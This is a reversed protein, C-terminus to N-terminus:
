KSYIKRHKPTVWFGMYKGLMLRTQADLGPFAGFFITTLPMLIWQLIMFAYSSKKVHAPRPPLILVSLIAPTILAVLALRMVINSFQTQNFSLVSINFHQGGILGPLWGLAFLMISNTAWSWYGEGVALTYFLKKSLPIAKNKIFGFMYYPVNEVGYGWRRHQKYINVLTRWISSDLNADLAVPYYLPIVRYNGNYRLLCQWFVRSDESVMNVQWFGIDVAAKFPMSHSSFTILNEPRAQQILQWFTSSFAVIRALAPADWINNVFFPVPQYSAHLPDPTTLFTYTLKGFYEPYVITDIDLVSVIIKEYPLGISDIIDRKIEKGAWAINAGKGAIEGEINEPHVTCTFKFFVEGFEKELVEKVRNNHASGAREEQAIAIIIQKSPFNAKQLGRVSDQILEINETYTPLIVLHYITNWEGPSDPLNHLRELWNIKMNKRALSYGARLHLSLYVTKVLWYVDFMIIFLAALKPTFYSGIVILGLTTWSLLGPIIELFRYLARDSKIALDSAKGIHLYEQM